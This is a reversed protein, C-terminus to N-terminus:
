SGVSLSVLAEEPIAKGPAKHFQIQTEGAAELDRSRATSFAENKTNMPKGSQEGDVIEKKGQFM